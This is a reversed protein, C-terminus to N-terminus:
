SINWEKDGTQLLCEKIAYPLEEIIDGAILGHQGKQEAARDGAMGHLYVGAVAAEFPKVGQGIFGSIIGTLVDGAGATAMGPNGSPNIYVTGDPDAIITKAGKLVTIVGYQAAFEKATELRNSQVDEISMGTLRAMEGPHPTVVIQTKRQKLVSTDRAVANLADADMVVPVESNKIVADVIEIINKNVSLGPGIAIVDKRKMNALLPKISKRNLFGTGQDELSVTMSEKLSTSYIHSLSAPVALYVLGAGTRLAAGASLCGAGTMGASGTVILVRGYDGKNSECHRVPILSSVFSRLIVKTKINLSDIVKHPIGIDATILEGAFECGPHLILGIKPLAFTVTKLAKICCGLVESTEGNIGSPIDISIVPKGSLNIAKIVAAQLGEIKGKLGTGFIGDIVLDATSLESKLNELQLLNTLEWVEVGLNELIKLNTLADGAIDKKDAVTYTYVKAGKNFLHRAVAFADGGNNGKGAFVFVKKCSVRGLYSCVEEVVRLAANEMLVIGPIGMSNIALSDIKNMQKPTVVKMVRMKRWLLVAFPFGRELGWCPFKKSFKYNGM